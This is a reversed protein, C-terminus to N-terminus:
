GALGPVARRVALRADHQAIDLAEELARDALGGDAAAEGLADVRGLLAIQGRGCCFGASFRPSEHNAFAQVGTQRQRRNSCCNSLAEKSNSLQERYAGCANPHGAMNSTM